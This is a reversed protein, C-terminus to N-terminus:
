KVQMSELYTVLNDIHAYAIKDDKDVSSFIPGWTPMEKSGHAKWKGGNTLLDEITTRPFMGQNNKAITTLDIPKRKLAAAAPGHGKGDVGHCAACHAKYVSPGDLPTMRPQAFAAPALLACLCTTLGILLTRGTKITISM